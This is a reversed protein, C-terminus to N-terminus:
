RRNQLEIYRDLFHTAVGRNPSAALRDAVQALESSVRWSAVQGTLDDIAANASEAAGDIENLDLRTRALRVRYLARNRLYRNSYSTVARELLKEAHASRGLEMRCTGEVGDLEPPGLFACWEEAPKDADRELITRARAIARDSGRADDSLALAVARRLQPIAGLRPRGHPATASREAGEAFRAAERPRGLLNSQFALNALAHTEVEADNAQRALALAETYCSRAVDHCGADFALWGACMQIRGTARILRQGVSDGYTGHELMAYAEAVCAVASQWLSAGGHQYDLGYLRVASDQLEDADAVGVRGIRRLDASSGVLAALAPATLGWKMLSRRRMPDFPATHVVRQAYEARAIAVLEGNAELAKDVARAVPLTGHRHGNEIKSLYGYDLPALKALARLSLGREQRLRRLAEGFTEGNVVAWKPSKEFATTLATVDVPLV